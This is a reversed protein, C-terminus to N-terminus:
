MLNQRCPYVQLRLGPINQYSCLRSLTWTRSHFPFPTCALKCRRKNKIRSIQRYGFQTWTESAFRIVAAYCRSPGCKSTIWLTGCSRLLQCVRLTLALSRRVGLKDLRTCSSGRWKTARRRKAVVARSHM